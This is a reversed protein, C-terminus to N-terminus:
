LVEADNLVIGGGKLFIIFSTVLRQTKGGTFLSPAVLSHCSSFILKREATENLNLTQEGRLRENVPAAVFSGHPLRSAMSLASQTLPALPVSRCFPDRSGEGSRRGIDM